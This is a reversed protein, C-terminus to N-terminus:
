TFETQKEPLRGGGEMWQLLGVGERLENKEGDSGTMGDSDWGLDVAPCLADLTQSWTIIEELGMTKIPQTTNGPIYASPLGTQKKSAEQYM